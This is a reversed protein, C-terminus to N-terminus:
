SFKGNSVEQLAEFISQSGHDRFINGQVVIKRLDPFTRPVVSAEYVGRRSFIHVIRGPLWLQIVEHEHVVVCDGGNISDTSVEPTELNDREMKKTQKPPSSQTEKQKMFARTDGGRVRPTWLGAARSIADSWDQQLFTFIESKFM